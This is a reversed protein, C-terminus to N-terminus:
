EPRVFATPRGRVTEIRIELRRSCLDTPRDRDGDSLDLPNDGTEWVDFIRIAGETIAALRWRGSESETEDSAEINSKRGPFRRMFFSVNEDPPVVCVEKAALLENINIWAGRPQALLRGTIDEGEPQRGSVTLTMLAWATVSAGLAYRLVRKEEGNM